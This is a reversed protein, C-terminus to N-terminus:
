PDAHGEPSLRDSEGSSGLLDLAGTWHNLPQEIQRAHSLGDGRVVHIAESSGACVESPLITSGPNRRAIM